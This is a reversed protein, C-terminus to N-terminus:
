NEREILKLPRSMAELGVEIIEAAVGVRMQWNDAVADYEAALVRQTQADAVAEQHRDATEWDLGDVLMTEVKFGARHLIIIWESDAGMARQPQTNAMLTEVAARSFGKSGASLDLELGVLNSIVANSMAETQQMAQPHTAWAHKTRGIVLCHSQTVAQVTRRWEDPRTEVWRLLRDFDAYHIHDAGTDLTSKLALYRGEPWAKTVIPQVREMSKLRDVVDAAADPPLTIVIQAYVQLLESHLRVFRSLEGRPNWPTALAISM